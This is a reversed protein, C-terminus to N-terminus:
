IIQQKQAWGLWDFEVTEVVELNEDMSHNDAYIMLNECEWRASPAILGDFGLFDIAYGIRQTAAYDRATFEILDVGLKQLDENQLRVVKNLSVQITHFCLKKTPIPNQQALIFSIESKAGEPEMSTYLVPTGKNETSSPLAWRGGSISPAVPDSNKRTVRFVTGNFSEPDYESLADMLEIDSLRDM